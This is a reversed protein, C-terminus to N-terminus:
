RKEETQIRLGLRAAHVTLYVLESTAEAAIQRNAEKPVAVVTGARLAYRAGDVTASGGGSVGVLLVDLDSNVHPDMAVGAALQVLNADLDGGRPLSWVVGDPGLRDVAFLDVTTPLMARM